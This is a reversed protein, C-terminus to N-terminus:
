HLQKNLFQTEIRIRQNEGSVIVDKEIGNRREELRHKKGDGGLGYVSM